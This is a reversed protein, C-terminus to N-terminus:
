IFLLIKKKLVFIEIRIQINLFFFFFINKKLYIIKKISIIVNFM